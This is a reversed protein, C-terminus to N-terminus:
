FFTDENNQTQFRYLRLNLLTENFPIPDDLAELPNEFVGEKDNLLSATHDRIVEHDVNFGRKELECIVSTKGSGPAGSFV